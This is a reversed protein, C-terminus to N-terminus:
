IGDRRATRPLLRATIRPVPPTAPRVMSPVPTHACTRCRSGRRIASSLRSSRALTRTATASWTANARRRRRRRPRSSTRTSSSRPFSIDVISSIRRWRTPTSRRRRRRWRRGPGRSFALSEARPQFISKEPFMQCLDRWVSAGASPSSSDSPFARNARRPPRSRSSSHFGVSLISSCCTSLVRRRRNSEGSTM